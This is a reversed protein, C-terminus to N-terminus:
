RLKAEKVLEETHRYVAGPPQPRRALGSRIAAQAVAEAVAPAVRPDFPGPIVHEPALGDEEALAAIAFAAATKMAEDIRRARVDLAGRFIGPFGLVNNVQNPYDSRGTCVVAAGAALAAGPEIEPDPNALAFIIPGPAMARVMEPTVVGAASVGLFVDAGQLAQALDGRRGTRNTVQALEEKIPNLGERGPHIIGRRDCLIVDGAGQGLLLRAIAVGAAGAGNIVVTAASLERGTLRLSNLLAALAVVATGHQDDHFVPIDLRAQLEREIAFCRPAAIDELNIGGFGPALRAVTEVMEAPDKTALVLPFADVGAFVKFLLAKGEMVPLSAEAGLDGLGLIATGDSVVAVMNGRGTLEWVAEPDAAIARCPEAVGPSYALSLDRQGAVEVKARIGIKGRAKRHLALAEEGLAM